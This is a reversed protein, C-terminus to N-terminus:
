PTPDSLYLVQGIEIQNPNDIDNWDALLRWTLKYTPYKDAISSLSEGSKVTHTKVRPPPNGSVRQAKIFTSLNFITAEIDPPFWSNDKADGKLGTRKKYYSAIQSSGNKYGYLSWGGDIFRGVTFGLVAFDDSRDIGEQPPLTFGHFHHIFKPPKRHWGGWGHKRFFRQQTAWAVGPIEMDVCADYDHTGASPKYGKNYAPQFLSIGKDFQKRAQQDTYELHCIHRFSGTVRRGSKDKRSWMVRTTPSPPKEWNIPNGALTLVAM